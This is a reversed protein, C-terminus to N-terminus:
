ITKRSQPMDNLLERMATISAELKDAQVAMYGFNYNSEDAKAPPYYSAFASYALARAERIEQFVISSMGGGFYDGFVQSYPLLDKDFVQDKSLMMINAQVMDYDIFLVQDRDTALEPHQEM